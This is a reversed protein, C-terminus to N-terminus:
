EETEATGEPINWLKRPGKRNIFMAQTKSYPFKQSTYLGYYGSLTFCVAIAFAYYPMGAFGFIEFTMLLSTFPSNTMGAFFAAVGIGTYLPM